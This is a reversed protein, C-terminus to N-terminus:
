FLHVLEVLGAERSDELARRLPEERPGRLPLQLIEEPRASVVEATLLHLSLRQEVLDKGQQAAPVDQVSGPAGGGPAQVRHQLGHM